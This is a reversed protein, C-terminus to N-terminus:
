YHFPCIGKLSGGGATKLTVYDRVVEDIRSRERVVAVDEDHIRGAM